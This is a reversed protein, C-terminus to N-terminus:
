EANFHLTELEGFKPQDQLLREEFIGLNAFRNRAGTSRNKLIKIPKNYIM